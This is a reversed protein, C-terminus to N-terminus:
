FVFLGQFDLVKTNPHLITAGIRRGKIPQCFWRKRSQEALNLTRVGCVTRTKCLLVLTTQATLSSSVFLGGMQSTKKNQTLGVIEFRNKRM